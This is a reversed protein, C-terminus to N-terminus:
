LITCKGFFKELINNLYEPHEYCDTLYCYYENSRKEIVKEHTIKGTKRLAKRYNPM